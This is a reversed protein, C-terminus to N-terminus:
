PRAEHIKDVTVLIERCKALATGDDNSFWWVPAGRSRLGVKVKAYPFEKQLKVKILDMYKRVMGKDFDFHESLQEVSLDLRIERPGKPESWSFSAPRKDMHANRRIQFSGVRIQQLYNKINAKDNLRVKDFIPTVGACHANTM